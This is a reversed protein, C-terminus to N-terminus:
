KTSPSNTKPPANTTKAFPSAPKPAANTSGSKASTTPASPVIKPPAKKQYSAVLQISGVLKNKPADPQLNMSRVRIMSGGSGLRFLFDVLGKEETIINLTGSQEDFFQNTKGTSSILTSRIPNWGNVQVGTLAAEQYVTKALNLAQDEPQVSVGQEELEGLRAAYIRINQIERNYIHELELAAKKRNKIKGWESFQPWVFIWNVILFVIIGVIIVLRREAPRLNLKDFFSKL